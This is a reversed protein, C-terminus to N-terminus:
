PYVSAPLVFVKETARFPPLWLRVSHPPIPLESAGPIPSFGVAYRAHISPACTLFRNFKKLPGPDHLCDVMVLGATEMETVSDYDFGATIETRKVGLL